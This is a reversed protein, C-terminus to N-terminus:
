LITIRFRKTLILIIMMGTFSSFYTPFSLPFLLILNFRTVLVHSTIIELFFFWFDMWSRRLRLPLPTNNDCIFMFYSILYRVVLACSICKLFFVWLCRRLVLSHKNSYSVRQNVVTKSNFWWVMASALFTKVISIFLTIIRFYFTYHRSSILM